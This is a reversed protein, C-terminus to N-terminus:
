TDILFGAATDNKQVIMTGHALIFGLARLACVEREGKMQMM